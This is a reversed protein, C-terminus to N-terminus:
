FSFSLATVLRFTTELQEGNLDQLVPFSPSITLAAHPSFRARLGGGIFLATGGTNPDREGSEESKQLHRVNTEAFVSFQPFRELDDSFRYAVAMGADFRDGIKFDDHETRLTYQASVDFTFRRTLFTSYALGLMGDWSGSGATASPEVPDGTNTRVDHRGTPFKVGGFVAGQGAPGRYFRYKGTLWLDTLGDPNFREIEAEEEEAGHAHEGGEAEAHEHAEGGHEAHAPEAHAHGAEAEDHHGGGERAGDAHYYGISLGLHFNELVGYTLAVSSLYSQDLADFHGGSKEARGLINRDSVNEFDAFDLRLDAAWHRPKLTEASQTTGGGGSTGPGHDARAALPLALAAVLTATRLAITKM